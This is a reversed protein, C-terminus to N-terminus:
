INGMIPQWRHYLNDSCNELLILSFNGFEVHLVVRISGWLPCMTTPSAILYMDLARGYQELSQVLPQIKKSLAASRSSAQHLKHTASASYFLNELSAESFLVREKDTLDELYRERARLWPDMRAAAATASKQVILSM